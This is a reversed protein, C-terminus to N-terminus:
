LRGMNRCMCPHISMLPNSNEESAMGKQCKHLAKKGRKEQACPQLACSILILQHCIPIHSALINPSNCMLVTAKESLKNSYKYLLPILSLHDQEEPSTFFVPPM